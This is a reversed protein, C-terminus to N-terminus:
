AARAAGRHVLYGFAAATAFMILSYVAAPVSMASNGLVTVAITIALTGNHIGIEMGIAIAQRREIRLLRPAAYGVALSTLNFLLAAGGVQGLYTGLNGLNEAIAAGIVLALFLVSGARVPKDLRQALALKKARLLMGLAIPVLVVAMVSVVKGIPLPIAREQGLFHDLSLSVILPLTLLSLM